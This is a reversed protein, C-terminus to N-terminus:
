PGNRKCNRNRRSGQPHCQARQHRVAGAQRHRDNFVTGDDLTFNLEATLESHNQLYTSAALKAPERSLSNVDRIQVTSNMFSVTGPRTGKEDQESYRIDTNRFSLSDIRIAFPLRQVTENLMARDGKDPREPLQKNKAVHIRFADADLLGIKLINDNRLAAPDIDSSTFDAVEIEYMNDSYELTGMFQEYGGLPILKMTSLALLGDRHSFDLGSLTVRYRDESFLFGLSDVAMSGDTPVPSSAEHAFELSFGAKLNLSNIRNNERGDDRIIVTGNRLDLSEIGFKRVPTGDESADDGGMLSNDWDVTFTDMMLGSLTINRRSILGPGIGSIHLTDTRFVDRDTSASSVTMHGISVARQLPSIRASAMEVKFDSGLANGLFSQLRNEDVGYRLWTLLGALIILFAAALILIVKKM